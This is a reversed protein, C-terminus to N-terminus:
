QLEIVKGIESVEKTSNLFQNAEELKNFPGIYTQFIEEESNSVGSLQLVDCNDYGDSIYKQSEANAVNQDEFSNLIILYNGNFSSKNYVIDTVTENEETTENSSFLSNFDIFQTSAYGVLAIVFFIIFYKFTGNNNRPKKPTKSIPEIEPQNVLEEKFVPSVPQTKEVEVQKETDKKKQITALREQLIRLKEENTKNSM